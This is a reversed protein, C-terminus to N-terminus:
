IKVHKLFDLYVDPSHDFEMASSCKPCKATPGEPYEALGAQVDKGVSLIQVDEHGCADCIYRAEFSDVTSNPGLFEPVMSFQDVMLSPANVYHVRATSTHVAKTWQRVGCSNIRTVKSFDVWVEPEFLAVLEEFSSSEDIIGVFKVLRGEWAIKVRSDTM